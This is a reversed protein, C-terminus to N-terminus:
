APAAPWRDPWKARFEERLLGMALIDHYAGHKFAAQRFRGEPVFGVKEYCAVARPNFDYVHLCIRHLNMESFGFRCLTMLADTGYGQNWCGKEGIMIGLAANHNIPDIRHLGCSGILQGETTEIGLVLDKKPDQERELWRQEDLLSKPFGMALAYIVEEDNIWRHLLELDTQELARLVVREGKIM